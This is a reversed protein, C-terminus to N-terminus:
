GGNRPSGKDNGNNSVSGSDAPTPLLKLSDRAREICVDCLGNDNPTPRGCRLGSPALGICRGDAESALTFPEPEPERLVADILTEQMMGIVDERSQPKKSALKRKNYASALGEIKDLKASQKEDGLHEDPTLIELTDYLQANELKFKHSKRAIHKGKRRVYEPEYGKASFYGGGLWANCVYIINTLHKLTSNVRDEHQSIWYVDLHFKRAMALKWRAILPFALPKYSPAYLQAEDITVVCNSLDAFQDWGTFYEWPVSVRPLCHQWQAIYGHEAARKGEDTWVGTTSIRPEYFRPELKMTFNTRVDHGAMLHQYALMVSMYTKGSGMRGTIGIVKGGLTRSVNEKTRLTFFAVIGLFVACGGLLKLMTTM